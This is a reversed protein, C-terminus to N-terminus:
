PTQGHHAFRQLGQLSKCIKRSNNIANNKQNGFQQLGQLSNCPGQIARLKATAEHVFPGNGRAAFTIIVNLFYLEM